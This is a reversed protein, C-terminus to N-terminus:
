THQPGGLIEMVSHTLKSYDREFGAKGWADMVKMYVETKFLYCFHYRAQHSSWRGMYEIGDLEGCAKKIGEDMEKLEDSTGFWDIHQIVLMNQVKQIQIAEMKPALNMQKSNSVAFM